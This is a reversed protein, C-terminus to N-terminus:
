VRSDTSPRASRPPSAPASGAQGSGASQRSFRPSGPFSQQGTARRVGSEHNKPDFRVDGPEPAVREAASQEWVAGVFNDGGASAGASPSDVEDAYVARRGKLSTIRTLKIGFLDTHTLPHADARLSDFCPAVRPLAGRAANAVPAMARDADRALQQIPAPATVLINNMGEAMVASLQETARRTQDKVRNLAGAAGADQAALARRRQERFSEAQLDELHQARKELEDARADLEAACRAANTLALRSATAGPAACARRATGCRGAPGPPRHRPQLAAGAPWLPPSRTM